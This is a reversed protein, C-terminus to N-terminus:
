VTCRTNNLDIQIDKAIDDSTLKLIHRVIKVNTM